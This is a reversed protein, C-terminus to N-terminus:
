CYTNLCSLYLVPCHSAETYMNLQSADGHKNKLLTVILGYCFDSPFFGHRLLSNFLLSLRVHLNKDGYSIHEGMVGDLGPTKNKKM